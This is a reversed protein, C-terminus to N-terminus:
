YTISQHQSSNLPARPCPHTMLTPYLPKPKHPTPTTYQIFPHPISHTLMQIPLSKFHHRNQIPSTKSPHSISHTPIQIPPSKFPHPKSHSHYKIPTCKFTHDWFLLYFYFIKMNLRLNPCLNVANSNCLTVYVLTVFRFMKRHVTFARHVLNVDTAM